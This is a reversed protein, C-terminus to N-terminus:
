EERFLSRKKLIDELRVDRGKETDKLKNGSTDRLFSASQTDGHCAKIIQAMLVAEQYTTGKKPLAKKVADSVLSEDIESSLLGELTELFSRERKKGKASKKRPKIEDM